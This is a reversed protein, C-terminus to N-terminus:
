PRHFRTFQTSEEHVDMENEKFDNLEKRIMAKDSPTLRTWPKDAKRDYVEAQTVEVYDDFKIIQDEKLQAITPRFSLKRLLMKRREEMNAQESDSDSRPARKMINRQELEELTPRESLKRELRISVKKRIEKMAADEEAIEEDDEEEEAANKKKDLSLAMTDKRLLRAISPKRGRRDEEEEDEDEEEERQEEEECSSDGSECDTSSDSQKRRRKVIAEGNLRIRSPAGPKKLVPKEPQADFRPEKAAIQEFTGTKPPEQAAPSLMGAAKGNGESRRAAATSGRMPADASQVVEEEDDSTRGTKDGQQEDQEAATDIVLVAVRKKGDHAVGNTTSPLVTSEDTITIIPTPRCDTTSVITALSAARPQSDISVTEATAASKNGDSSSRFKRSLSKRWKWPRVLHRWFRSPFIRRRARKSEEEEGMGAPASTSLPRETSSSMISRYDARTRQDVRADLVT